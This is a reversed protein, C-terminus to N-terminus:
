AGNGPRLSELVEAPDARCLTEILFVGAQVGGRRLAEWFARGLTLRGPMPAEASPVRTLREVQELAGTLSLERDQVFGINVRPHEGYVGVVM